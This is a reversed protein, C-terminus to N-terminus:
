SHFRFSPIQNKQDVAVISVGWEHLAASIQRHGAGLELVKAGSPWERQLVHQHLSNPAEKFVYSDDDDLDFKPHHVLYVRNARYRLVTSVCNFAYSLGDVRCLEDGYYTPIPVEIIRKGKAVLQVIIETDFHFDNTNYRFPM